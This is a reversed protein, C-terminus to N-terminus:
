KILIIIVCYLHHSHLHQNIIPVILNKRTRVVNEMMDITDRVM